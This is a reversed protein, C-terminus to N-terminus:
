PLFSTNDPQHHFVETVELIFEATCQVLFRQQISSRVNYHQATYKSSSSYWFSWFKNMQIICPIQSTFRLVHSKQLTQKWATAMSSNKMFLERHGTPIFTSNGIYKLGNSCKAKNYLIQFHLTFTKGFFTTYDYQFFWATTKRPIETISNLFVQLMALFLVQVFTPNTPWKWHWSLSWIPLLTHTSFKSQIVPLYWMSSSMSYIINQQGHMRIYRSLLFWYSASNVKLKNWYNVEVQKLCTYQEDDPPAVRYTRAHIHILLLGARFM